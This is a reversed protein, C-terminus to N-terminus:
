GSPNQEAKWELMAEYIHGIGAQPIHDSLFIVTYGRRRLDAKFFANDLRDRAFRKLDWLLIGEPADPARRQASPALQRCFHILKDFADRGVVTGGPRAEDAFLRVLVLHHQQCYEEAVRRQQDVSREQEDGGSDRFYGVVRSGPPLPCDDPMFREAAREAHHRQWNGHQSM